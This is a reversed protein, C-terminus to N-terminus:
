WPLDGDWMRFISFRVSRVWLEVVACVDCPWGHEADEEGAGCGWGVDDVEECGDLAEADEGAGHEEGEEAVFDAVPFPLHADWDCDHGEEASEECDDFWVLLAHTDGEGEDRGHTVPISLVEGDSVYLQTSILGFETDGTTQSTDRPIGTASDSDRSKCSDKGRSLGTM